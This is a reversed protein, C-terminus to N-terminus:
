MVQHLLIIRFIGRVAPLRKPWILDKRGDTGAAHAPHIAGAVAPQSTVDRELQQGGLHRVIGFPESPGLAFGSGNGARLWEITM